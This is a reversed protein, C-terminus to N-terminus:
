YYASLQFSGGISFIQRAPLARLFVLACVPRCPASGLACYSIILEEGPLVIKQPAEMKYDIEEDEWV